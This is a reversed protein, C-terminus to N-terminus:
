KKENREPNSRDNDPPENFIFMITQSLSYCGGVFRILVKHPTRKALRKAFNFAKKADSFRRSKPLAPSEVVYIRIEGQGM